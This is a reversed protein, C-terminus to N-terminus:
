VIPEPIDTLNDVMRTSRAKGGPLNRTRIETLPQTFGASPLILYVSFFDLLRIPFRVRSRRTQLM